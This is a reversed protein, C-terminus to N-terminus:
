NKGLQRLMKGHSHLASIFGPQIHYPLKHKQTVEMLLKSIKPYHVHSVNPFLHHVVQFNLGGILWSLIKNHPAFDSTTNLQHVAWNNEMSGNEDPLPYKSSPVVHATQFIITLLFGGVFHMLLFLLPVWYWAIPLFLIPLGVIVAYYIVKSLVVETMLRTYSKNTGMPSESKFYRKIQRFDKTTVWTLTMLGYLFWAYIYQFRHIKKLPKHPSFRLLSVPPSIDEDIGDINTFGHHLTNHQHQWNVPFGGLLYLSAGMIKNIKKNTSFSYHNADHMVGMGIGAMGFGMIIWAAIIWPISSIFGTLMLAFPLFYLTFMFISKMVLNFNGQKSKHKEEFYANVKKRLEVIFELKDKSSFNATRINMSTQKGVM